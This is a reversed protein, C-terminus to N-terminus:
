GKEGCKEGGGSKEGFGGGLGGVGDLRFGDLREKGGSDVFGARGFVRVGVAYALGEGVAHEFGTVDLDFDVFGRLFYSGDVFGVAGMEVVFDPKYLLADAFEVDVAYSVAHFGAVDANDGGAVVVPDAVGAVCGAGIEYYRDAWGFLRSCFCSLGPMAPAKM